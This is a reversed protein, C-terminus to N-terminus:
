TYLSVFWSWTTTCFSSPMTTASRAALTINM